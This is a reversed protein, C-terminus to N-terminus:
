LGSNKSVTRGIGSWDIDEGEKAITELLHDRLLSLLPMPVRRTEAAAAALRMDKLGLPAAFGAPRFREEVLIAGYNRFVPADFLTGTLVELLTAKPVGGKEALAMAEALTEIASLIAFNGCLKVLNAAAPLDGVTFVRQGIANFLPTAKMVDAPDGSAVVFLKAAAAADPRGFVPASIYRQGRAAHRSAAHEATAVAITSMSVHLAGAELGALLGDEGSLVAELAADDALMTLVAEKGAAAERPSAALSAGAEVLKHTKDVSRNWVAVGHGARVLNAAIPAGMQGLGLFGIRM